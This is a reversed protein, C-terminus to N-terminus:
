RASNLFSCQSLIHILTKEKKGCKRRISNDEIGYQAVYLQSNFRVLLLGVFAKRM